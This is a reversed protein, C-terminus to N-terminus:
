ANRWSPARKETFARLGEVADHTRMLETLYIRELADVERCYREVFSARAARVASRLACASKAALHRRVYDIAASRFLM